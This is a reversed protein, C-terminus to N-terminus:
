DIPVVTQDLAEHTTFGSPVLAFRVSHPPPAEATAAALSAIGHAALANRIRRLTLLDDTEVTTFAQGAGLSVHIPRVAGVSELTAITDESLILADVNQAKLDRLLDPLPRGSTQALTDVEAFELGIEVRRNHSEAQFRRAAAFLSALVGLAILAAPLPSLARSRNLM